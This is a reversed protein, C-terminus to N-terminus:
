KRTERLLSKIDRQIEELLRSTGDRSEKAAELDERRQSWVRRLERENGLGRNELRILWLLASAAAAIIAWFDRLFDAM